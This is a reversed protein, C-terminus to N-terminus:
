REASSAAERPVSPLARSLREDISRGEYTKERFHAFPSVPELAVVTPDSGREFAARFDIREWAELAAPRFTTGRALSIARRAPEFVIAHTNEHPQCVAGLIRRAAAPDVKGANEELLDALARAREDTDVACVPDLPGNACSLSGAELFRDPADASVIASTKEDALAVFHGSAVRTARFLARAEEVTSCEELIRRVLFALPTGARRPGAGENVLIAACLGAENMGSSVAAFGPWGISVFARKGRPRVLLVLTSRGLVHSPAFDLNRGFVLPGRARGDAPGFAAFATCACSDAAANARLLDRADVDASLAMAEVEHLHDEPVGAGPSHGEPPSSTLLDRLLSLRKWSSLLDRLPERALAGLQSGIEDPSGEVCAIALNGRLLLRGRGSKGELFVDSAPSVSFHSCGTAGLLLLGLLGARARGSRP